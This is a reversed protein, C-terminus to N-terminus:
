KRRAGTVPHAALWDSAEVHLRGQPAIRTAQEADRALARARTRDGGTLWLANALALMGEAGSVM